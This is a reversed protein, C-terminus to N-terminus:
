LKQAITKVADALAVLAQALTSTDNPKTEIDGNACHQRDNRELVKMFCEVLEKSGDKMAHVFDDLVVPNELSVPTKDQGAKKRRRRKGSSDTDMSEMDNAESSGVKM